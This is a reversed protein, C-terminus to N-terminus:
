LGERKCDLVALFDRGPGEQARSYLYPPFEIQPEREWLKSYPHVREHGVFVYTECHAFVDLEDVGVENGGCDHEQLDYKRTVWCGLVVQPKYHRVATAADMAIVKPGYPVTPTGLHDYIERYLPMNQQFSDTGVIGLADSLVGNGAGIEIAARGRIIERLRAVLETTPLSYIGTYHGFLARETSTTQAWFMAALIKLRGDKDLAVSRLDRHEM